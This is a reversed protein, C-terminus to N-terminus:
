KTDEAPGTDQLYHAAIVQAMCATLAKAMPIHLFENPGHANAMPGLVGTVLFQAEPFQAALMTMFPITGGEGMCMVQKGFVDMSAQQTAAELWPALPPANWGTANWEPQFGARAGYPVNHEVLFHIAETAKQSDCTPPLRISLKASTGPRMVNGAQGTSPIGDMGIVEMYPRWTRNLILETTDTTEPELGEIIPFREFVQRGLIAAAQEAQARRDEPIQVHFDDSLIFGTLSDEIREILKRLIRFSSPVVGSADGSHVGETLVDVNIVGSILGRLSTTLWLQEYNGCGSDLCIVLDPQGIRPMLHELYDPLDPSGSEECAEILVICRAHPTNAQQLTALAIISAFVAYGDDAGGRGYLKDGERLAQWPSLGERWGTMEPQKDLHGYCLVTRDSSGPIEIYILPTRGELRVIELQMHRIPQTRCWEALLKTAQDMFGNAQWDPDFAPSKNPIAMYQELVPLASQEWAHDISAIHPKIDM